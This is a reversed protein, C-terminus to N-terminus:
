KIKEILMKSLLNYGAEGFHLGDNLSGRCLKSLNGQTMMANFFDVFQVKYERAVESMVKSYEALEDNFRVHQKEEDVAPGSVLIIKKGPYFCICGSVIGELNQKYQKLPVHKHSAEDNVGVMIVLYDCQDQKLVLDGLMALLAGSNVGCIATNIIELNPMKEQLSFNIHPIDKGEHRAILSDGTLLLKM